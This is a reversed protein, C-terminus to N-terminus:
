GNRRKRNRKLNEADKARWVKEPVPNLWPSCEHTVMECFMNILRTTGRRYRWCRYCVSGAFLFVPEKAGNLPYGDRACMPVLCRLCFVTSADDCKHCAGGYNRITAPTTPTDCARCCELKDRCTSCWLIAERSDIPLFPGDQENRRRECGFCYELRNDM